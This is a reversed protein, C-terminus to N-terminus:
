KKAKSKLSEYGKCFTSLGLLSEFAAVGEKYKKKMLFLSAELFLRWENLVDTDADVNDARSLVHYAEYFDKEEVKIKMMM